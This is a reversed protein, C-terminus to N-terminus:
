RQKQTNLQSDEEYEGNQKALISFATRAEAEQETLCVRQPIYSGTPVERRCVKKPKEAVVEIPPAAPPAGSAAQAVAATLLIAITM